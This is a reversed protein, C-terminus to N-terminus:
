NDRGTRRLQHNNYGLHFPELSGSSPEVEEFSRLIGHGHADNQQKDERLCLLTAMGAQRAADLEPVSDSIFLMEALPRHLAQAIGRYSAADTKPGMTTDFYGQILPRLDGEATQSFLLQQALVSGSSFICIEKGSERWRRLAPPVDDYVHGRLGGRRYGAEWIRGQIAKLAPSKRDQDMLWHLYGLASDPESQSPWPPCGAKDADAAYEERLRELDSALEPQGGNAHLFEQLHARAYPFLTEYVFKISTTTGEIDLLIVRIDM